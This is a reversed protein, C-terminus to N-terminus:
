KEWVFTELPRGDRERFVRLYLPGPPLSALIDAPLRFDEALPTGAFPILSPNTSVALWAGERAPVVAEDLPTARPPRGGARAARELIARGLNGYRRELYVRRSAQRRV